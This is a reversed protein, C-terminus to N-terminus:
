TNKDSLIDIEPDFLGWPARLLAHWEPNWNRAYLKLYAGQEPTNIITRCYSFIVNGNEILERSQNKKNDHIILTNM